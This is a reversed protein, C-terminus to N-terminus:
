TNWFHATFSAPTSFETSGCILSILDPDKNGRLSFFTVGAEEYLWRALRRGRGVAQYPGLM